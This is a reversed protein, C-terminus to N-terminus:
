GLLFTEFIKMFQIKSFYLLCTRSQVPPFLDCEELFRRYSKYFFWNRTMQTWKVHVTFGRQSAYSMHRWWSQYDYVLMIFRLKTTSHKYLCCKSWVMYAINMWKMGYLRYENVEYWLPSIWKSWVMFAINMHIKSVICKMNIVLM